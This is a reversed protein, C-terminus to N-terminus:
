TLSRDLKVYNEPLDPLEVPAAGALYARISAVESPAHRRFAWGHCILARRRLERCTPCGNVNVYYGHNSVHCLSVVRRALTTRM